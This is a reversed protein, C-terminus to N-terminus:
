QSSVEDTVRRCEFVGRICSHFIRGQSPATLLEQYVDLPVDFYRYVAGRAFAIELVRNTPDYGASTMMSSVLPVRMM